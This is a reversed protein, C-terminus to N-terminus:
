DPGTERKGDGTEKPSTRVRPGTCESLRRDRALSKLPKSGVVGARVRVGVANSVDVCGNIGARTSLIDNVGCSLPRAVKEWVFGPRWCTKWTWCGLIALGEGDCCRAKWCCTCRGVCPPM